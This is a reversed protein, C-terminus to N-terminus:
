NTFYMPHLLYGPFRILNKLINWLLKLIMKQLAYTISRDIGTRNKHSKVFYNISNTLFMM